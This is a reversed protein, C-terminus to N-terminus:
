VTLRTCWDPIVKWRPKLFRFKLGRVRSNRRITTRFSAGLCNGACILKLEKFEVVAWIVCKIKKQVIAFRKAGARKFKRLDRECRTSLLLTWHGFEEIGDGFYQSASTPSIPHLSTSDELALPSSPIDLYMKRGASPSTAQTSSMVIDICHKLVEPKGM